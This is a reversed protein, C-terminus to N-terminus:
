KRFFQVGFYLSCISVVVPNTGVITIVAFVENAKVTNNFLVLITGLTAMSLIWGLMLFAVWRRTVSRKSNENNITKILELHTTAAESLSKSKEEPTFQQEDIWNGVGRVSDSILDISKSSNSSGGFIAGVWSFFGM